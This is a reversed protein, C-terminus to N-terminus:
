ARRKMAWYFRRIASGTCRTCSRIVFAPAYQKVVVQTPGPDPLILEQVELAGPKQPLVVVRAATGMMNEKATKNFAM